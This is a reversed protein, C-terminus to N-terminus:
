SRYEEKAELVCAAIAELAGLPFRALEDDGRPRDWWRQYVVAECNDEVIEVTAGADLAYCLVHCGNDLHVFELGPILSNLAEYDIM